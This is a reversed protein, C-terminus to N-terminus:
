GTACPPRPRPHLLAKMRVKYGGLYLLRLMVTWPRCRPYHHSKPGLLLAIQQGALPLARPVRQAFEEALRAGEGAWKVRVERRENAVAM